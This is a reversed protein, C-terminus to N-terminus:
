TIYNNLKHGEGDDENTYLTYIYINYSFSIKLGKIQVHFQSEVQACKKKKKKANFETFKLHLQSHRAGM